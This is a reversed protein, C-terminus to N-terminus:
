EGWMEGLDYLKLPFPRDLEGCGKPNRGVIRENGEILWAQRRGLDVAQEGWELLEQRMRHVVREGPLSWRKTRAARKWGIPLTRERKFAHAPEPEIEVV